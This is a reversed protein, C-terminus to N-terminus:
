VSELKAHALRRRGLLSAIWGGCVVLWCTWPLWDGWLAYWSTRRDIPIAATVVAEVKKSKVWDDNPLAIVRGNSDIVASIGMNVARAVARRCEVARFRCIALHEEHESTGDFWGDNSINVLFDVRPGEGPDVYNRALNPDTDEYCILVGFHYNGLPFRTQEKGPTISYDFDYPAFAKLWPLMERFPVYEGFPVCHIKNYRAVSEGHPGKPRILIASNGRSSQGDAGLLASNAGLLVNTQWRKAVEDVLDERYANGKRWETPVRETPLEPSVEEWYYPYSTEPWVILDPREQAAEDSLDRYHCVVQRIAEKSAEPSSAENRLRQDLNGQLLALRPGRAGDPESLRWAGYALAGGVLSLVIASQVVRARLRSRNAEQPLAFLTRFWSCSCLLDFLLANVAAVVFSVSYAGGLDAIQIV